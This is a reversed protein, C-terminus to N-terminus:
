EREPVDVLLGATPVGFLSASINQSRARAPDFSAEKLRIGRGTLMRIDAGFDLANFGAGRFVREPYQSHQIIPRVYGSGRAVIQTPNARTYGLVWEVSRDPAALEALQSALKRDGLEMASRVLRGLQGTTLEEYDRFAKDLRLRFERPEQGGRAAVGAATERNRSFFAGRPYREPAEGSSEGRWFKENSYGQERARAERSARDMPLRAGGRGGSGGGREPAFMPRGRGFPILGIAANVAFDKQEQETMRGTSAHYADIFPQVLADVLTRSAGRGPRQPLANWHPIRLRRPSRRFCRGNSIRQCRRGQFSARRRRVDNPKSAAVRALDIRLTITQCCPPGLCRQLGLNTPGGPRRETLTQSPQDGSRGTGARPPLPRTGSVFSMFALRSFSLAERPIDGPSACNNVM